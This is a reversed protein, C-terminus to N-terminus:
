DPKAAANEGATELLWNRVVGQEEDPSRGCKRAKNESVEEARAQCVPSARRRRAPEEDM